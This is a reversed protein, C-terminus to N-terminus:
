EHQGPIDIPVWRGERAAQYIAQMTVVDLLGSRGDPAPDRRRRISDAFADLELAFEDMVKFRKEFWRGGIKGFLRREEDFAFAPDLAAWGKEGFVKIFNAQAAGFSASGQMLLSDPFKLQFSISEEVGSFRAPDAAWSYASAESPDKGTLWRVTNVCYVGVDVLSGGGSAVPDLHWAPVNNRNALFITFASHILKLKGLKGSTVLKKLALSAPEFYKRYAIMLRVKNARCAQIMLRCDDVTTAMPKECLVHCGAEAARVSYRAHTGNDTAIFVADVDPNALCQDYDQYTYWAGAGFGVALREAKKSDGSVVAVLKAKKSHRFAPLVARQSIRGLGVVAYGVRKNKPM